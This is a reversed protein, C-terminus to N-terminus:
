RLFELWAAWGMIGFVIAGFLVGTAHTGKM